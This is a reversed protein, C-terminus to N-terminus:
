SGSRSDSGKDSIAKGDEKVEKPKQTGAKPKIIYSISRTAQEPREIEVPKM